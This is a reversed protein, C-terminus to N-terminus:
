SSPPSAVFARFRQLLRDLVTPGQAFAMFAPVDMKDARVPDGEPLGQEAELGM